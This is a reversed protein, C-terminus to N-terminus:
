KEKTLDKLILTKDYPTKIYINLLYDYRNADKHVYYLFPTHNIKDKDRLGASAHADFLRMLKQLEKASPTVGNFDPNFSKAFKDAQATSQDTRLNIFLVVLDNRKSQKKYQQYVDAIEGLRPVCVDACGIYGFFILVKNKSVSFKQPLTIPKHVHIRGQQLEDENLFPFAGVGGLFILVSISLFLLTLFFPKM